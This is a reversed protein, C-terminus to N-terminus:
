GLGILGPPAICVEEEEEEESEPEPVSRKGKTGNMQGWAKGNPAKAGKKRPAPEDDESEQSPYTSASVCASKDIYRTKM